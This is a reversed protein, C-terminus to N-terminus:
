PAGTVEQKSAPQAARDHFVPLFGIGGAIPGASISLMITPLFLNKRDILKSLIAMPVGIVLSAVMTLGSFIAHVIQTKDAPLEFLGYILIYLAASLGLANMVVAAGVGLKGALDKEYGPAPEKDKLQKVLWVLCAIWCCFGIFGAIWGATIWIGWGAMRTIFQSEEAASPAKVGLLFIFEVMAVWVPSLSLLLSLFTLLSIKQRWSM